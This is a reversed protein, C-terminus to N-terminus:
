LLGLSQTPSLAKIWRLLLLEPVKRNDRQASGVSLSLDSSDDMRNVSSLVPSRHVSISCDSSHEERGACRGTNTLGYLLKEM